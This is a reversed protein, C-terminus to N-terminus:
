IVLLASNAKKENVRHKKIIVAGVPPVADAPQPPSEDGGTTALVSGTLLLVRTGTSLSIFTTKLSYTCLPSAKLLIERLAPSSSTAKKEL